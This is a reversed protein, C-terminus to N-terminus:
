GADPRDLHKRAASPARPAQSIERYHALQQVLYRRAGPDTALAFVVERAGDRLSRVAMKISGPDVPPPYPQEEDMMWDLSWGFLDTLANWVKWANRPLARGKLWQDVARQNEGIARAVASRSMGRMARELEVKKWWPWSDTMIGTNCTVWGHDLM